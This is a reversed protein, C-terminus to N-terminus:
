AAAGQPLQYYEEGDLLHGGADPTRGGIQKFWYAVGAASCQDRLDRAWALNLPRHQPGSEGGCIVWDIGPIYRSGSLGGGVLRVGPDSPFDSLYRTLNVPGLMPEVSLFRVKAPIELLKPIRVDAWHQNEVSVGLWVNEPWADGYPAFRKINGPRKTLLLWDLYPTAAILPWLKEREANIVPHNEFVDAMSSCFVRERVGAAAARKEWKLPQKWYTESLRRRDAHKGWIAFGYRESLTDAYCNTCGDSVKVCGWALNHTHHCWSIKSYEGM